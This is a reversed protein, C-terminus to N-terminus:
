GSSQSEQSNKKTTKKLRELCIVSLVMFYAVVVEKWMKKILRDGIVLKNSAM